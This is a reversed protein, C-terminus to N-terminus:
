VLKGLDNAMKTYDKHPGSRHISRRTQEAVLALSLAVWAEDKHQAVWWHRWTTLEQAMQSQIVARELTDEVELLSMAMLAAKSKLKESRRGFFRVTM